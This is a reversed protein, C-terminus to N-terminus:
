NILKKNIMYISKELYDSNNKQFIIKRNNMPFKEIFNM